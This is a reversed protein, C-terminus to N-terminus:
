AQALSAEPLTELLMLAETVMVNGSVVTGVTEPNVTGEVEEENATEIVVKVAM